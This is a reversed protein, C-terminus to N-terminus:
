IVIRCRTCVLLDRSECVTLPGACVPCSQLSDSDADRFWFYYAPVIENLRSVIERGTRNVQGNPDTLRSAAWIEYERSDLWLKYLSDYVSLWCAIEEAFRSDFGLREPPVELNCEFCSLPNSTLHAQLM